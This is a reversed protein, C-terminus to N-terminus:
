KQWKRQMQRKKKTMEREEKVAKKQTLCINKIKKRKLFTTQTIFHILKDCDIINIRVESLFFICSQELLVEHRPVARTTWHNLIQSGNCSIHTQNKTQSSGVPRPAVLSHAAVASARADWLGHEVRSLGSYHSAGASCPSYGGKGWSSFAWLLLSSM